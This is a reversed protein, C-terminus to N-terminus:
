PKKAVASVVSAEQFDSSISCLVLSASLISNFPLEQFSTLLSKEPKPNRKSSQSSYKPSM